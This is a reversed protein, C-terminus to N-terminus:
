EKGTPMRCFFGVVTWPQAHQQHAVAFVGHRVGFLLAQCGDLATEVAEHVWHRLVRCLLLDQVHKVSHLFVRM